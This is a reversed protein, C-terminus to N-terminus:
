PNSNDVKCDYKRNGYIQGGPVMTNWLFPLLKKRREATDPSWYDKYIGASDRQNFTSNNAIASDMGGFVEQWRFGDTTVIIINEVKPQAEAYASLLLAIALILAKM